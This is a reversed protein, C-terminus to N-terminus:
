KFKYYEQNLYAAVDSVDEPFWGVDLNTNCREVFSELKVLSTSLRDSRTYVDQDHCTTCNAETYAIGNVTANIEVDHFLEKGSEADGAFVTTPVTFMLALPIAATKSLLGSM